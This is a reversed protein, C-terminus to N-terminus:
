ESDSGSTEDEDSSSDSIADRESEVVVDEGGECDEQEDEGEDSEEESRRKSPVLAMTYGGRSNPRYSVASSPASSCARETSVATSTMACFLKSDKRGAGRKKTTKAQKRNERKEVMDARRRDLVEGTRGVAERMAEGQGRGEGVLEFYREACMQNHTVTKAKAKGGGGKGLRAKYRRPKWTLLDPAQQRVVAGSPLFFDMLTQKGQGGKNTGCGLCSKRDGSLYYRGLAHSVDCRWAPQDIPDQPTFSAAAPLPQTHELTASGSPHPGPGPTPSRPLVSAPTTQKPPKPRLYTEVATIGARRAQEEIAGNDMAAWYADKAISNHCPRNSKRQKASPKGPKWASVSVPQFFFTRRPMYFDMYQMKPNDTISTNCGRCNKRDGANYYHGMAHKIGCRWVVKEDISVQDFYADPPLVQDYELTRSGSPHSQAEDYGVAARHPQEFVINQTLPTRAKSNQVKSSRATADQGSDIKRRKKKPGSQVKQSAEARPTVEEITNKITDMERSADIESVLLPPLNSGASVEDYRESSESNRGKRAALIEVRELYEDATPRFGMALANAFAEKISPTAKRPVQLPRGQREGREALRRKHDNILRMRWSPVTEVFDNSYSEAASTANNTAKANPSPSGSPLRLPSPLVRLDEFVEQIQHTSSTPSDQGPSDQGQIDRLDSILQPENRVDAMILDDDPTPDIPFNSSTYAPAKVELFALWNRRPLFAHDERVAAGIMNRSKGKRVTPPKTARGTPLPKSWVDKSGLKGFAEDIDELPASHRGIPYEKTSFRVMAPEPEVRHWSENLSRAVISTSRLGFENFIDSNFNHVDLLPVDNKGDNALLNVARHHANWVMKNAIWNVNASVSALYKEIRTEVDPHEPLCEKIQDPHLAHAIFKKLFTAEYAKQNAQYLVFLAYDDKSPIRRHLRVGIRAREVRTM